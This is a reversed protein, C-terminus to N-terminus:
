ASPVARILRSGVTMCAVGPPQWKDAVVRWEDLVQQKNTIKILLSAASHPDIWLVFLEPQASVRWSGFIITKTCNKAFRARFRAPPSLEVEVKFM